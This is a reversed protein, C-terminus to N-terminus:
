PQNRLEVAFIISPYPSRDIIFSQNYIIAYATVTKSQSLCFIM